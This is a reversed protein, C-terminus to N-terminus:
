SSMPPRSSSSSSPWVDNLLVKSRTSWSEWWSLNDFAVDIWWNPDVKGLRSLSPAKFLSHSGDGVDETRRCSEGQLRPPERLTLIAAGSAANNFRWSSTSWSISWEISISEFLFIRLSCTWGNVRWNKRGSISDVTIIIRSALNCGFVNRFSM